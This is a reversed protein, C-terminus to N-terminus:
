FCRVKILTDRQIYKYNLDDPIYINMDKRNSIIELLGIRDFEECDKLRRLGAVGKYSIPLLDKKGDLFQFVFYSNFCRETPFYKKLIVECYERFANMDRIRSEIASPKIM